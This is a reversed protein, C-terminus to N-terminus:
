PVLRPEGSLAPPGTILHSNSGDANVQAQMVPAPMVWLVGETEHVRVWAIRSGDPSWTPLLDAAPDLTLRTQASGDAHMVYLEPNGDRDSVFAIRTGDPSWVPTVDQAGNATLRTLGSGDPNVAYIEWNGDRYSEFVVRTV